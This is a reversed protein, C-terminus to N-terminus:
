SNGKSNFSDVKYGNQKVEKLLQNVYKNTITYTKKSKFMSRLSSKHMKKPQAQSWNFILQEAQKKMPTRRLTFYMAYAIRQTCDTFRNKLFYNVWAPVEDYKFNMDKIPTYDRKMDTWKNWVVQPIHNGGDVVHDEKLTKIRGATHHWGYELKIMHNGTLALDVKHNIIEKEDFDYLWKLFQEKLLKRHYDDTIFNLEPFIMHIHYSKGGSFWMKYAIGNDRLKKAIRRAEGYNMKRMNMDTEFVIEDQFIQRDTISDNEIFWEVERGPYTFHKWWGSTHKFAVKVKGYKKRYVELITRVTNM